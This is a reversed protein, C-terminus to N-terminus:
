RAPELREAVLRGDRTLRAVAVMPRTRLRRELAPASSESVWLRAAASVRGPEAAVGRVITLSSAAPDVPASCVITPATVLVRGGGEELCLRCAGRDCLAPDGRATWVYRFALYRGRLPDRPDYGTIPIRWETAGRLAAERAAISGLTGLLPLTVAALILPRRIM